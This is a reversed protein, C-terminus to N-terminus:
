MVRRVDSLSRAGLTATNLILGRQSDITVSSVRSTMLTELSYAAGDMNAVAELSYDGAPARTGDDKLGDWEFETLGSGAPLRMTRVVQGSGDSILIAVESAGLPMEIAGHVTGAESLTAANSPVLVERGVMTAGDLVQSARMSEALSAFSNQMDQIGSVTSFQALQGLFESPDMAKFPDQNQLQAIMLKLFEAQGLRDKSNTASMLAAANAGTTNTGAIDAIAM